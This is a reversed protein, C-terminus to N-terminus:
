RYNQLLEDLFRYVQRLEAYATSINKEIQISRSRADPLMAESVSVDAQKLTEDVGNLRNLVQGLAREDQPTIIIANDSDPDEAQKEITAILSATSDYVAQYRGLQLVQRTFTIHEQIEEALPVFDDATQRIADRDLSVRAQDIHRILATDLREIEDLSYERYELKVGTTNLLELRLVTLYTRLVTARKEMVNRTAQVASELSSLTNLQAFQGRLISFEQEAQRYEALQGNLSRKVEAIEEQFESREFIYDTVLNGPTTAAGDITLDDNKELDEEVITEAETTSSEEASFDLDSAQIDAHTSSFILTFIGFFLALTLVNVFVAIIQTLKTKQKTLYWHM